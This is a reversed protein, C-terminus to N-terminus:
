RQVVEVDGAITNVIIKVKKLYYDKDPGELRLSENRLDYAAKSFFQVTAYVSSVNLTVAVDIPVYLTTKGLIKRIIIVNDQGAIIVKTLDITDNGSIRIINIDDFAYYDSDYVAAGIWQHKTPRPQVGEQKLQLLALRNKKKVQSFHNIIVYVIALLVGLIIYPNLMFVLFLLLLSVSLIFNNRSDQNYFRLVLLVIVLIFLFSTLSNSLITMLGMAFLICEVLIFFQFKRM